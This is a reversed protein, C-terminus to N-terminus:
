QIEVSRTKRSISTVVKTVLYKKDGGDLGKYKEVIKMMHLVLPIAMSGDLKWNSSIYECAIKMLDDHLEHAM